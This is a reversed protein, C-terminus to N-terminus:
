PVIIFFLFSLEAYGLMCMYLVDPSPSSQPFLFPVSPISKGLPCPIAM